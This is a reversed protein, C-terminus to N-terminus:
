DHRGRVIKRWLVRRQYLAAGVHILLWTILLYAGYHHLQDANHALGKSVPIGPM